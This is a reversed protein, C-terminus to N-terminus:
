AAMLAPKSKRRYALFGLGAFGLIMMAWTSPEPVAAAITLTGSFPQDYPPQTFGSSSDITTTQGSSLSAVTDLILGLGQPTGGGINVLYDATNPPFPESLTVSNFTGISSADIDASTVLGTSADFTLTGSLTGGAYTGTVSYNYVDAQAPRNIALFMLAIGAALAAPVNREM